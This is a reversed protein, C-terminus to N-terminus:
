GAKINPGAATIASTSTPNNMRMRNTGYPRGKRGGATTVTNGIRAVTDADARRSPRQHRRDDRWWRSDPLLLPLHRGYQIAATLVFGVNKSAPRGLYRGAHVSARTCTGSTTSHMSSQWQWEITQGVTITTNSNGSFSDKFTM